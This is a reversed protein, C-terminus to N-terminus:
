VHTSNMKDILHSTLNQRAQDWRCSEDGFIFLGCLGSRRYAQDPLIGANRPASQSSYRLLPSGM